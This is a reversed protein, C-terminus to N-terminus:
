KDIVIERGERISDRIADALRLGVAADSLTLAPMRSRDRLCTIFHDQENALADDDQVLPISTRRGQSHLFLAHGTDLEISGTEGVVEVRDPPLDGPPFTWATRLDCIVGSDTVASAATLSRAGEAGSRWAQVTRFPSRAIWSVLDIDHIMTMLVPDIDPYRSVHAEDRYRRSSIYLVRGIVGSATIEALTQHDRSFRLVHGPLVLVGADAAAKALHLAEAADTTVPKELLVGLRGAIASLTIGAHSGAPTAVIIADAPTEALMQLPDEFCRASGHRQRMTSLASPSPDAIGAIRVDARAALRLLHEQGFAGAGALLIRLPSNAHDTM